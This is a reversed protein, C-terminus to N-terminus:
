HRHQTIPSLESGLFIGTLPTWEDNTTGFCKELSKAPRDSPLNPRHELGCNDVIVLAIDCLFHGCQLLEM